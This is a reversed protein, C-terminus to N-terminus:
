LQTAKFRDEVLRAIEKCLLQEVSRPVTYPRGHVPKCEKNMLQLSIPKMNFEELTGDFLHEYKQLLQLLQLKEKKNLNICTDVVEQLVSPKYEADLIKSSRTYGDELLKPENATL